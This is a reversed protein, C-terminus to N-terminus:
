ESKVGTKRVLRGHLEYSERWEAEFQTPTSGAPLYGMDKLQDGTEASRLLENAIQAYRERMPLPTGAPAFVGFWAYADLDPVGVEQYTPVNPLVPHRYKGNIALMKLTGAALHPRATAVESSGAPIEGSLVAQMLPAVGRYHVPTMDFGMSMAIATHFLHGGSGAGWDGMHIPKNLSKAYQAFQALTTVPLDSKVILGTQARALMTVASFDKLPEFPLKQMHPLIAHTTSVTVLLTQGDAPQSQVYQAGIIGGAGSRNDVITPQGLTDQIRKAYMRALVDTGGGPPFPVVIRITRNGAPQALAPVGTVAALSAISRILSRRAPSFNRIPQM